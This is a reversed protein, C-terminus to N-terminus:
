SYSNKPIMLYVFIRFSTEWKLIFTSASLKYMQCRTNFRIEDEIEQCMLCLRRELPTVPNTHRGWEVELNHSSTRFKSLATRYKDNKKLSIPLKRM